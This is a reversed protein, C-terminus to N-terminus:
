VPFRPFSQIVENPILRGFSAVVGIDFGRDAILTPNPPWEVLDIGNTTSFKWVESVLSRM